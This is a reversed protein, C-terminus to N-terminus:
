KDWVMKGSVVQRYAWEWEVCIGSPSALLGDDANIEGIIVAVTVPIVEGEEPKCVAATPEM